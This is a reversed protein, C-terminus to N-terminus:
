AGSEDLFTHLDANDDREMILLFVDAGDQVLHSPGIRVRFNDRDIVGAPVLRQGRDAPMRVHPQNGEVLLQALASGDVGAQLRGLAIDAHHHVAVSLVVRRVNGLQHRRQVTRIDGAAESDDPLVNPTAAHSRPNGIENASLNQVVPNMVGTAGQFSHAFRVHAMQDGEVAHVTINGYEQSMGAQFHDLDGDVVARACM